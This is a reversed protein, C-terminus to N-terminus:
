SMILCVGFKHARRNELITKVLGDPDFAGGADLIPDVWM